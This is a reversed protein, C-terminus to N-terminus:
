MHNLVKCILVCFALKALWTLPPKVWHKLRKVRLSESSQHSMLDEGTAKLWDGVWRWNEKQRRCDMVGGIFSGCFVDAPPLDECKLPWVAHFSSCLSSLGTPEVQCIHRKRKAATGWLKFLQKPEPRFGSSSCIERTLVGKWAELHNCVNFRDKRSPRSALGAECLDFTTMTPFPAHGWAATSRKFAAFPKKNKQWYVDDCTKCWQSSFFLSKKLSDCSTSM